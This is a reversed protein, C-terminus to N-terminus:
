FQYPSIASLRDPLEEKQSEDYASISREVERRPDSVDARIFTEAYDLGSQTNVYINGERDLLGRDAHNVPRRRLADKVASLTTTM